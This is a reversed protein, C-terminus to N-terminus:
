SGTGSLENQLGFLKHIGDRELLSKVVWITQEVGDRRVVVGCPGYLTNKGMKIPTDSCVTREVKTPGQQAQFLARTLGRGSQRVILEWGVAPPMGNTEDASGPFYLYGYEARSVILPAMALTDGSALLTWYQRLLADTSPAGGSLRNEAPAPATAQFRRLNEEPSFVSDIVYGPTKRLSDQSPIWIGDSRRELMAPNIGAPRDADAAPEGACGVAALMLLLASLDRAIRLRSIRLTRFM